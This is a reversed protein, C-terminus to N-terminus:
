AALVQLQEVAIPPNRKENLAEIAAEIAVEATPAIGSGVTGGALDHATIYWCDEHAPMLQLSLAGLSRKECLAKLQETLTM